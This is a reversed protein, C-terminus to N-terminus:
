DSFISYKLLNLYESTKITIKLNQKYWWKEASGIIKTEYNTFFWSSTLGYNISSSSVNHIILYNKESEWLFDWVTKWTFSLEGSSTVTKYNWSTSNYFDDTGSIWWDNWVINWVVDGSVWTLNLDTIKKYAGTYTYHFLPIIDFEWNKVEKSLIWTSTSALDYSIFTDKAKHFSSSSLPNSSLLVSFDNIGHNKEESYSYGYNKAKLMALEIRWEAWAFASFYNEMAKTDKNESLVLSFVWTTLVLMFWVMLIAIIISYGSNNTKNKM